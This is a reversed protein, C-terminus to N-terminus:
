SDGRACHFCPNGMNHSGARRGSTSIQSRETGFHQHSTCCYNCTRGRGAVTSSDPCILAFLERFRCFSSTSPPTPSLPRSLPYGLRAKSVPLPLLNMKFLFFCKLFFQMPVHAELNFPSHPLPPPSTSYQPLQSLSLHGLDELFVFM